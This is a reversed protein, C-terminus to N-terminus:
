SPEGALDRMFKELRAPHILIAGGSGRGYRAMVGRRVLEERHTHTFQQAARLTGFLHKNQKQLESLRVFGVLVATDSVNSL